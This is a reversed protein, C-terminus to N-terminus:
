GDLAIPHNRRELEHRVASYTEGPSYDAGRSFTFCFFINEAAPAGLHSAIENLCYRLNLSQHAQGAQLLICIADIKRLCIRGYILVYARSSTPLVM